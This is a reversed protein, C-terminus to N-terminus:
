PSGMIALKAQYNLEMVPHEFRVSVRVLRNYLTPEHPLPYGVRPTIASCRQDMNHSAM